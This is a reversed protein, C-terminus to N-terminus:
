YIEAALRGDPQPGIGLALNGGKSVIEILLHVLERPTMYDHEFKYGWGKKDLTICSECPINMSKEPVTCEPTLINELSGRV